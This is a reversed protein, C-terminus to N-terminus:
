GGCPTFDIITATQQETLRVGNESLFFEHEAASMEGARVILVM